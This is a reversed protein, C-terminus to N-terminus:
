GWVNGFMVAIAKQKEPSDAREFERTADTVDNKKIWDKRKMEFIYKSSKAIDTVMDVSSEHQKIVGDKREYTTIGEKNQLYDVVVFCDDEFRLEGDDEYIHHSNSRLKKSMMNPSTVSLEVFERGDELEIHRAHTLSFVEQEVLKSPNEKLIDKSVEKKITEKDKAM